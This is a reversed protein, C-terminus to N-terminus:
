LRAHYDLTVNDTGSPPATAFVVDFGTSTKNTVQAPSNDRADLSTAQVFAVNPASGLGHSVTFTTTTGDGSFSAGGDEVDALAVASAQAATVSHPNTTDNRHTLDVVQVWSTGNDREIVDEDTVYYLRGATGAAPQNARTDAELSQAGAVNEVAGAQTATVLHPNATDNRHSLDLLQNWAAGDDRELVDEDVVYYLRGTTGAAPQNARTDEQISPAGSVNEVAGAQTATVVHPNATDNRHILDIVQIWNAGDDYEIVDEDTVHYFRGVTGAAPQNARTDSHFSIVGSVNEVAGAQAATVAHPNTTDNQHSDLSNDLDGFAAQSNNTSILTFTSPDVTIESAQSGQIVWVSNTADWRKMYDVTIDYWLQGDVPSSPATDSVVAFGPDDSIGQLISRATNHSDSHTNDYLTDSGLMHNLGSIEDRWAM